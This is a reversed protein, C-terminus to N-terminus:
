AIERGEEKPLDMRVAKKSVKNSSQVYVGCSCVMGGVRFEGLAADCL